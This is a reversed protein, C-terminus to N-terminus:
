KLRVPYKIRNKELKQYVADMPDIKLKDCLNLLYIMVDGIEDRIPNTDDIQCSEDPTLWQFCEALEGAEIMVSSALNKPTHYRDWGRAFNFSRVSEIAEYVTFHMATM